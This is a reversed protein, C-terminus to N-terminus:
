DGRDRSCPSGGRALDARSGALWLEIQGVAFPVAADVRLAREGFTFPEFGHAALADAEYPTWGGEPGIAVVARASSPRRTGLAGQAREHALLREAAAFLADLEDEVLPKFFRRVQVDPAVTDRGQELGLRLEAALRAASLLPSGWYSRDVRHSGALVLRGVGMAAAAQLVRRLIKPRPLALLLDVPARAPPDRELTVRLVVAPSLALGEGSGLRSGAVGVRVRDGLAARLVERM